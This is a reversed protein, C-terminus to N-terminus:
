DSLQKGSPVDFSITTGVEGSIYKDPFAEWLKAMAEPGTCHVPMIRQVDLRSLCDITKQIRQGSAHVLHMGGIVAYIARGGTQRRIAELTNAVGAHACGLIVVTGGASDFYLAQDDELMDPKRVATDLFFAGGTDEFEMERPIPGTLTLGEGIDVMGEVDVLRRRFQEVDLRGIGAERASGDSERVYKPEFAAPHAYIKAATAQQAAWALGGVHDYHGHSLAIAGATELPIGLQRANHELVLGQGTDWLVRLPGAEIWFALGHEALFGKRHVIDDVLITVDVTKNM